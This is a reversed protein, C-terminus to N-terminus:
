GTPWYEGEGSFLAAWSSSACFRGPQFIGGVFFLNM